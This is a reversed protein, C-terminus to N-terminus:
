GLRAASTRSYTDRLLPKWPAVGADRHAERTAAIRAGIDNLAHVHIEQAPITWRDVDHAPVTVLWAPHAPRTV